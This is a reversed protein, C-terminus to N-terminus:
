FYTDFVFQVIKFFFTCFQVFRNTLFITDLATISEPVIIGFGVHGFLGPDLYAVSYIRM